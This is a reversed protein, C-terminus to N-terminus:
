GDEGSEHLEYLEQEVGFVFPLGGGGDFLPAAAQAMQALVQEGGGVIGVALGVLLPFARQGVPLCLGIHCLEGFLNVGVGGAFVRLVEQVLGAFGAEQAAADGKAAHHRHARQGEVGDAQEAQVIADEWALGFGGREVQNGLQWLGAVACPAVVVAVQKQFGYQGRPMDQIQRVDAVVDAGIGFAGWGCKQAFQHVADGREGIQAALVEHAVPHGVM